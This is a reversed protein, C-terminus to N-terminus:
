RYQPKRGRLSRFAAPWLVSPLAFVQVCRKCDFHQVDCLPKGTDDGVVVDRKLQLLTLDVGQQAFVARAFGRQHAHQETQILGLLADDFLVAHLYGDLIGVVGVGQADAHHVLVELQHFAEGHQVVDDHAHLGCFAAEQLLLLSPLLDDREALFVAQLDVRVRQDLVDGHTHLLAGLNQFHQVPVILNENEILGLADQEDGVLEVLDHGHGVAAGDQALALVDAGHLRLVGGHLLKGGHHHPAVDAEVHLLLGGLGALHHQVHGVHGHGALHVLVVGDLVHAQLHAPALDDAEGTDVAVALRLKDVAQGAKLRHYGALDGEVPLVDGFHGDALPVDHAHGVDRLIAM